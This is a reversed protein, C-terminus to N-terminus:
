RTSSLSRGSILSREIQSIVMTSRDFVDEWTFRLLKWGHVVADRDRARDAEFRGREMHFRRSDWEIALRQEPYADDFRRTPEWPIPYEPLPAPLGAERILVRGERELVSMPRTEGSREDLYSRLIASGKKGRRSVETVLENLYGLELIGAAVAGDLVRTLRKPRLVQALDLCTRGVNTVPLGDVVEIHSDKIDFNRHVVVGPFDHTTRSHVTVAFVGKPVGDMRHFEAATEHSVVATPLLAVAAKLRDSEDREQTLRYGIRGVPVWAATAVRRAIQSRSFGIALAQERSIVGGQRLGTDLATRDQQMTM